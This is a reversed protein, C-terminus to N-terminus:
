QIQQGQANYLRGEHEIILAGNILQKGEAPKKVITQEADTATGHTGIRMRMIPSPTAAVQRFYARMGKLSANEAAWKLQNGSSLFIVSKATADSADAITTQSFVPVFSYVGDTAENLTNDITVHRFKLDLVAGDEPKILYPVGAEIADADTFYFTAEDGNIETHSYRLIAPNGLQGAVTEADIAFPVCFTAYDTGNATISRSITVNATQGDYTTLATANDADDALTLATIKTGKLEKNSGSQVVRLEWDYTGNADVAEYLSADNCHLVIAYDERYDSSLIVRIPSTHTASANEIRKDRNLYIGTPFSNDGILNINNGACKVDGTVVSYSANIVSVGDFALTAKKNSDFLQRDRVTNQGDVIVNRFTVTYNATDDNALVMLVNWAVGCIIKEAGTAGQITLEKKIELRSGSITVDDYLTIVDGANANDVATALSTEVVGQTTNVVASYGTHNFSPHDVSTHCASAFKGKEDADHQNSTVLLGVLTKGDITALPTLKHAPIAFSWVSNTCSSTAIPTNMEDGEGPAGPAYGVVTAAKTNMDSAATGHSVEYPFDWVAMVDMGGGGVTTLNLTYVKEFSYDEILFYEVAFINANYNGEFSDDKFGNKSYNNDYSSGGNIRFQMELYPLSLDTEEDKWNAFEQLDAVSTFTAVWDVAYRATEDTLETADAFIFHVKNVSVAGDQLAGLKNLGDAGLNFYYIRGDDECDIQGSPGNIGNVWQDANNADKYQFEFKRSNATGPLPATLKIAWVIDKTKDFTYTGSTQYQFDARYKNLCVNNKDYQMAMQVNVVGDAVSTITGGSSVIWGESNDGNFTVKISQPGVAAWTAVSLTLALLSFFFKRKM